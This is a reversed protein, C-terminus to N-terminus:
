AASRARLIMRQAAEDLEVTTQPLPYGIHPETGESEAQALPVNACIDSGLGIRETHSEGIHLSESV